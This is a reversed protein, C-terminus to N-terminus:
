KYFWHRFIKKVKPNKDDRKDKDESEIEPIEKEFCPHKYRKTVKKRPTVVTVTYPLNEASGQSAPLEPLDDKDYTQSLFVWCKGPDLGIVNVCANEVSWQLLPELTKPLEKENSKIKKMQKEFNDSETCVKFPFEKEINAWAKSIDLQEGLLRKNVNLGSVLPQIINKNTTEISKPLIVNYKASSAREKKKNQSETNVKDKKHTLLVTEPTSINTMENLHVVSPKKSVNLKSKTKESLKLAPPCMKPSSSLVRELRGKASQARNPLLSLIAHKSEVEHLFDENMHSVGNKKDKDHLATETVCRQLSVNASSPRFLTGRYMFSGQIGGSPQKPNMNKEMQLQIDIPRSVAM